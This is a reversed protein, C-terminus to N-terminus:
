TQELAARAAASAAQGDCTGQYHEMLAKILQGMAQPGSLGLEQKLRLATASLEEAAPAQPLYKQILAAEAQEKAALEGRAGQEYLKAAEQRRKLERRLVTMVEAASLETRKAIAENHLAAKLSRLTTLEPLRARTAAAVDAELREIIETM